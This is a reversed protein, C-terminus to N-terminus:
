RWGSLDRGILKELKRNSEQYVDKLYRRTEPDMPPREEQQFVLRAIWHKLGDLRDTITDPATSAINKAAKYGAYVYQDVPYRGANAQPEDFSIVKIGIFQCIREFGNKSLDETLVVEISRPNFYEYYPVLSKYYKGRRVIRKGADYQPRWYDPISVEGRVLEGFLGDRHELRGQRVAFWYDSYAREVPNRLVFLLDANPADDRIRPATREAFELYSPSAEGRLREEGCHMFKKEYWDQGEEYHWSFYNTEKPRSMCVAPHAELYQYLSTTGSKAAGGIIVDVLSM